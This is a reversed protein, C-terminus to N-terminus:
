FFGGRHTFWKKYDPDTLEKRKLEYQIIDEENFVMTRQNNIRAIPKPFEPDKKMKQHIGQKTYGWRKALDLLGLLKM